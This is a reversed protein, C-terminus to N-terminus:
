KTFGTGWYLMWTPDTIIWKKEWPCLSPKAFTWHSEFRASEELRPQFRYALKSWFLAGTEKRLILFPLTYQSGTYEVKMHTEGLPRVTEGKYTLLVLKTSKMEVGPCVEERFYYPRSIVRVWHRVVDSLGQRWDESVRFKLGPCQIFLTWWTCSMKRLYNKRLCGKSVWPM